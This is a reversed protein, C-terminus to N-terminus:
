KEIEVQITENEKLKYLASIPFIVKQGKKIEQGFSLTISNNNIEVNELKEFNNDVFAYTFSGNDSFFQPTGSIKQTLSFTVTKSNRNLVNELQITEMINKVSGNQDIDLQKIKVPLSIRFVYFPKVPNYSIIYNGNEKIISLPEIYTAAVGNGQKYIGFINEFGAIEYGYIKQPLVIKGAAQPYIYYLVSAGIVNDATFSEVTQIRDNYINTQRSSLDEIPLDQTDNDFNKGIEFYVYSSLDESSIKRIKEYKGITMNNANVSATEIKPVFPIRNQIYKEADFQRLFANAMIKNMESTPHADLPNIVLKEKNKYRLFEEYPDIIFIENQKGFKNLRDNFIKLAYPQNPNKANIYPFLIFALKANIKEAESKLSIMLESLMKWDQSNEDKFIEVLQKHNKDEAQKKLINGVTAQYLATKKIFNPLPPDTIATFANVVNARRSNIGFLILDPHYFKGEDMYRRVSEKISFGPSAANVVEVKKNLKRNLEKEIIATYVDDQNNVLWGFTFSDGLAYIRFTDENRDKTYNKARYGAANLVVNEKTWELDKRKYNENIEPIINFARLVAEGIILSILTSFMLVFLKGKM